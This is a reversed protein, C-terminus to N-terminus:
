LVKEGQNKLISYNIIILFSLMITLIISTAAGAPWNFSTLFQFQILNGLMISKAGGLLDPIYFLTMAPLFVLLVGGMIGPLSLPLIIRSFVQWHNAGLDCAAEILNKDMRELNTYIPFIMFPLLNYVLGIMVATNTFLINLPQEIIGLGMFLQNLVGHAKLIAMIAYSRILSSTWFPIILLVLLIPKQQPKCRSLFFAFPYAILLCLLTAIGATLLSRGFIKLYTPTLLNKYNDLTFHWQIFDASNKSLFSVVFVISFAAIAFIGLWTSVLTISFFKFLRDNRM